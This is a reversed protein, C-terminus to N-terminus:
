SVSSNKTSPRSILRHIILAVTYFATLLVIVGFLVWFTTGVVYLGGDSPNRDGGVGALFWLAVLVPVLTAYVTQPRRLLNRLARM